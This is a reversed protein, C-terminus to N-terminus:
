RGPTPAGRLADRVREAVELPEADAVVVHDAAALYRHCRDRAIRLEADADRGPYRQLQRHAVIHVAEEMDHHPLLFVSTGTRRVLAANREVIDDCGDHVLFGSSTALVLGEARETVVTAALQSNAQCYERYGRQDVYDPIHQIRACFEQDLDAFPLALSAALVPGVTSKGAGGPGVLFIVRM